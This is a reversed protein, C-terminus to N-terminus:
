LAAPAPPEFWDDSSIADDWNVLGPRASDSRHDTEIHIVRGVDALSPTGARIHHQNRGVIPRVNNREMGVHRREAANLVAERDHPCCTM